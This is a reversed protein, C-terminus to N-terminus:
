NRVIADLEILSDKTDKQADILLQIHEVNKAEDEKL